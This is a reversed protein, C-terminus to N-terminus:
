QFPALIRSKEDYRLKAISFVSGSWSGSMDKPYSVDSVGTEIYSHKPFMSGDSIYAWYASDLFGGGVIYATARGSPSPLIDVIEAVDWVPNWTRLELSIRHRLVTFDAIFAAIGLCLVIGSIVKM